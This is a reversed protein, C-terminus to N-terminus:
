RCLTQLIDASYRYFRQLTDASSIQLKHLRKASSILLYYSAFYSVFLLCVAGILCRKNKAFFLVFPGHKKKIM